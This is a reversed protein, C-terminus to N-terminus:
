AARSMKLLTVGLTILWLMSLPAGISAIKLVPSVFYLFSILLLSGNFLAWYTLWKPFMNAKHAAWAMLTHGLIIVFSPGIFSNVIEWRHISVTTFFRVQTDLEVSQTLPLVLQNVLSLHAVFAGVVVPVGIVYGVLSLNKQWFNEAIIQYMVMGVILMAFFGMIPLILLFRSADAHSRVNQLWNDIAGDALAGPAFLIGKSESIIAFTLIFLGACIGAIGGLRYIGSNTIQNSKM